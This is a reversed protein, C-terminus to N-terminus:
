DVRKAAVGESIDQVFVMRGRMGLQFVHHVVKYSGVHGVGHMHVMREVYCRVVVSVLKEEGNAMMHDKMVGIGIWDNGIMVVKRQIM